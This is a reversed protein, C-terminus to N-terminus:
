TIMVLIRINEFVKTSNLKSMHETNKPDLHFPVMHFSYKDPIDTGAIYTTFARSFISTCSMSNSPSSGDSRGALSETAMRVAILCNPRHQCVREQINLKM